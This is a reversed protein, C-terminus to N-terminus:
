WRSSRVVNNKNTWVESERGSKGAGSICALRPVREIVTVPARIKTKEKYTGDHTATADDGQCKAVLDDLTVHNEVQPRAEDCNCASTVCGGRRPGVEVEPEATARTNGPGPRRPQDSPTASEGASACSGWATWPDRGRAHVHVTSRPPTSAPAAAATHHAGTGTGHGLDVLQMAIQLARGGGDGDSLGPVGATRGGCAAERGTEGTRHGRGRAARSSSSPLRCRDGSPRRLVLPLRGGGRVV